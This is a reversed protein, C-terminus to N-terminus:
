FYGQGWTDSMYRSTCYGYASSNREPFSAFGLNEANEKIEGMLSNSIVVKEAQTKKRQKREKIRLIKRESTEICNRASDYGRGFHRENQRHFLGVDVLWFNGEEDIMCNEGHLDAMVWGRKEIEEKAKDLLAYQAEANWNKPIFEHWSLNTVTEGKIKQIVMYRDGESYAYLTPITPIGQLEHLITGDRTGKEFEYQVSPKAVKLIYEGFDYVKGCHGSAILDFKEELKHFPNDFVSRSKLAGEFTVVADILQEMTEEPLDNILKFNEGAITVQKEETKMM